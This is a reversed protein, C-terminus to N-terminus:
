ARREARWRPIWKLLTSGDTFGLPLFAALFFILFNELMFFFILGSAVGSIPLPLLFWALLGILSFILSVAPGGLARQIHVLPPLEPEDRPYFSAVLLYWSRLGAMPYGLRRAVLAHGYQHSIESIWHLLTAFLGFFFAAGWGAQLWWRGLLTLLLWLVATAALSRGTFRLPVGLPAGLLYGRM